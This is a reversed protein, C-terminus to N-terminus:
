FGVTAPAMTAGGVNSARIQYGYQILSDAIVTNLFMLGFIVIIVSIDIMGMPPIKSRVRALIPETANYLFQVIPNSPDPNVWSILARIVFIWIFLYLLAGLIQGIGVLINGLLIM